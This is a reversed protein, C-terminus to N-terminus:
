GSSVTWDSVAWTSAAWADILAHNDREARDAHSTRNREDPELVLRRPPTRILTIAKNV